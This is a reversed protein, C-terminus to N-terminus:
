SQNGAWDRRAKAAVELMDQLYVYDGANLAHEARELVKRFAAIENQMAQRNAEFIDRWM